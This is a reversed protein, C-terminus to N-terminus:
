SKIYNLVNANFIEEKALFTTEIPLYVINNLYNKLRMFDKETTVIFEKKRLALLEKSSFYHHDPFQMHEFSLGLGGLHKVLPKPNAIGTVLTFKKDKLVDIKFTETKGFIKDSYTISTFYLQQNPETKLKKEIQKQEEESLNEPCKTVVIIGARKAQNKHDRLDGTPLYWDSSYLKNYTTLLIYLGAKVKRHQFADDLVIADIANNHVQLKKIGEVRNANVAVTVEPYKSFFQFPEDGLDEVTTNDNAIIFGKSKRKYGRSLIALNVENKLLKAIYEVMPTKGTGGVSLNGVCIIPLTFKTTSFIGKDYCWNRVYVVCAYLLSVPFLLKRLLQM